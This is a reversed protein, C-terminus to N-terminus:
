LLGDADGYACGRGDIPSSTPFLGVSTASPADPRRSAIAKVEAGSTIRPLDAAM